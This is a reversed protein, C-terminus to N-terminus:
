GDVVFADRIWEIRPQDESGSMSVVDFRCPRRALRPNAALYASAARVLRARKRADVSDAGDGFGHGRRYRVEVFALVDGDDMVLDIEGFRYRVNSARLRLGARELDRQALREWSAGRM